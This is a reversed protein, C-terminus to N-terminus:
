GDKVVEEESDQLSLWARLLATEPDPGRGITVIEETGVGEYCIAIWDGIPTKGMDFRRQGREELMEIIQRPQFLPITHKLWAEAAEWWRGRPRDVAVMYYQRGQRKEFKATIIGISGDACILVTDGFSPGRREWEERLRDANNICLEKYTESFM